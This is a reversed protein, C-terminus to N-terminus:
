WHARSFALVVGTGQWDSLSPESEDEATVTFDPAAEGVVIEEARSFDSSLCLCGFALTAAAGLLCTRM